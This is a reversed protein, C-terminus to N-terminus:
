MGRLLALWHTRRSQLVRRTAAHDDRVRDLLGSLRASARECDQLAGGVRLRAVPDAPLGDFWPDLDAPLDPVTLGDHHVGLDDLARCLVGFVDRVTALVIRVAETRSGVGFLDERVPEDSIAAGTRPLDGPALDSRTLGLQDLARDVHLQAWAVWRVAEDLDSERRVVPALGAEAVLLAEAMPGGARRLCDAAQDLLRPLAAAEARLRLAQEGHERAQAEVDAIRAALADRAALAARLLAARRARESALRRRGAHWVADATMRRLSRSRQMAQEAAGIVVPLRRRLLAAETRAQEAAAAEARAREAAGRAARLRARAQELAQDPTCAREAATVPDSTAAPGGSTPKSQDSHHARIMTMAM